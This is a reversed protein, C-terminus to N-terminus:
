DPKATAFFNTEIIKTVAPIPKAIIDGKEGIVAPIEPTVIEVQPRSKMCSDILNAIKVKGTFELQKRLEEIYDRSGTQSQAKTAYPMLTVTTKNSEMDWCYSTIKWYRLTMGKYNIEKTLAQGNAVMGAAIFLFLILIKRM